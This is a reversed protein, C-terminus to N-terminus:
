ILLKFYILLIVQMTLILQFINLHFFFVPESFKMEGLNIM